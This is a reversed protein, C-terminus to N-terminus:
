GVGLEWYVNGCRVNPRYASTSVVNWNLADGALFHYVRRAEGIASCNEPELDGDFLFYEMTLSLAREQIRANM